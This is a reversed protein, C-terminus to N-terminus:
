TPGARQMSHTRTSLPTWPITPSVARTVLSIWPLVVRAPDPGPALLPEGDRQVRVLLMATPVSTTTASM